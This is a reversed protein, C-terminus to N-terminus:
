KVAVTPHPAFFQHPACSNFSRPYTGLVTTCNASHYVLPMLSDLAAHDGERWRRLLETVQNSTTGV